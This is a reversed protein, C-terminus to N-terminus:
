NSNAMWTYGFSPSFDYGKGPDGRGLSVGGLPSLVPMLEPTASFLGGVSAFPGIKGSVGFGWGFGLQDKLLSHPYFEVSKTKSLEMLKSKHTTVGLSLSLVKTVKGHVDILHTKTFTGTKQQYEINTSKSISLMPGGNASPPILNAWHMSDMGFSKVQTALSAANGDSCFNGSTFWSDIDASHKGMNSLTTTMTSSDFGAGYVKALQAEITAGINTLGMVKAEAKAMADVLPKMLEDLGVAKASSAAIATAKSGANEVLGVAKVLEECRASPNWLTSTCTEGTSTYNAPCTKYCRGANGFEGANCTMKSAAVTDPARTCTEGTSTYGSPCNKYCRTLKRHEDAHCTMEAMLKVHLGKNCTSGINTYGPPCDAPRSAVAITDGPHTCTLGMNKYGAPCDAARSPNGKVASCTLGSSAYGPPCDALAAPACIM